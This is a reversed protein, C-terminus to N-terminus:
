ADCGGILGGLWRRVAMADDLHYRAALSHRTGVGVGFGGLEIAAVFADEDTVDDGVVVPIRAVFPPLQMQGILATGKDRDRAAFEFVLVGDLLRLRDFKAVLPALEARLCEAREPAQRYHLVCSSPKREVWTGPNLAAIEALRIEVALLQVQYARDHDAAGAGGHEAIRPLKLAGLIHDLDNASRGSIICIAHDLRTALLSLTARLTPTLAVDAPNDRYDCLTGDLDLFLAWNALPPLQPPPPHRASRSATVADIVVPEFLPDTSSM